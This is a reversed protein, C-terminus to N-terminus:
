RQLSLLEGWVHGYVRAREPGQREGVAAKFNDYDIAQAMQAVAAVWEAETVVARWRYDARRDQFVHLDPVQSRLSEMDEKSRARVILKDPDRRHRVVSYFGQTTMLWM